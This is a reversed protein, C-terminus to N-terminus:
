SFCDSSGVKRPINKCYKGLGCEVSAANGSFCGAEEMLCDFLHDQRRSGVTCFFSLNAVPATPLSVRVDEVAGGFGLQSCFTNAAAPYWEDFCINRWDESSCRYEIVGEHESTGNVLRIEIDDATSLFM